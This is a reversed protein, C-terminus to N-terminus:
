MIGWQKLVAAAQEYSRVIVYHTDTEGCRAMFRHQNDSVVGKPTKVEMLFAVGAKIIVLDPAGPTLGMKKLKNIKAYRNGAGSLDHENPVSFFIYHNRKAHYSLLGVIQTQIDSELITPKKAANKMHRLRAWSQLVSSIPVTSIKSGAIDISVSSRQPQVSLASVNM